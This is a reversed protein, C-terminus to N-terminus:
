NPADLSRRLNSLLDAATFPKQLFTTGPELVGHRLIAEESYGSVFVIRIGPRLEIAKRALETGSMAPMIMDTVMGHILRERASLVRMAEAGGPAEVVTYGSRRLIAATFRRVSEEDEVLLITETGGPVVGGREPEAAAIDKRPLRPFRLMFTSGQGPRSSVDITGGSQTVIGYVISLGLGTGKGKEKTTFFPEFIHSLTDQDMGQGTDSVVLSVAPGQPPESAPDVPIGDDCNETAIRMRGGRPMADRANAALNMIVQEVQSPDARILGLAEGLSIALSIDEGLLRRLMVEMNSLLGNLDLLRPSLIQRRSFALLQGTLASAREAARKIEVVSERLPYSSDLGDLLLDDYGNIVTLLNNFDHAIGGALRGVAEMKQAQRLQEESRRLAERMQHLETIDQVSGSVKVAAGSADLLPTGMAMAIGTTGDNRNFPFELRQPSRTSLASAIMKRVSQLSSPPLLEAAMKMAPSVPGPAFGFIRFVEDTCYVEGTAPTYDWYGLHALASAEELRTKSRRLEEEVRKHETIEILVGGIRWGIDTRVPFCTQQIYGALGDPRRYEHETMRNLWDAAGTALGEAVVLRLRDVAERGRSKEPLFREMLDWVFLGLATESGIGTLREFGGNCAVIRGSEDSLFAGGPFQEVFSLFRKESESLPEAQPEDQHTM